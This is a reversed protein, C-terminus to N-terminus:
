ECVLPCCGCGELWLVRRFRRITNVTAVIFIQLQEKGEFSMVKPRETAMELSPTGAEYRGFALPRGSSLSQGIGDNMDDSDDSDRQIQLPPSRSTNEALHSTYDETFDEDFYDMSHNIKGSGIEGRGALYQASSDRSSSQLNFDEEDFSLEDESYLKSQSRSAVRSQNSDSYKSLMKKAKELADESGSSFSTSIATKPFPQNNSSSMKANSKTSNTSQTKSNFNEIDFDYVDDDTVTSFM